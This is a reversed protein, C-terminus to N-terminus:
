KSVHIQLQRGEIKPLSRLTLLIIMLGDTALKTAM